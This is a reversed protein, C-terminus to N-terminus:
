EARAKAGAEAGAEAESELLELMTSALVKDVGSLLMRGFVHRPPLCLSRRRITQDQVTLNFGAMVAYHTMNPYTALFAPLSMMEPAPAPIPASRAKSDSSDGEESGSGSGSGSARNQDQDQDQDQNSATVSYVSTWMGGKGKGTRKISEDSTPQMAEATQDEEQDQDEQERQHKRPDEWQTHGEELGQVGTKTTSLLGFYPMALGDQTVYVGWVEEWGEGEGEGLTLEGRHAMVFQEIPEPLPPTQELEHGDLNGKHVLDVVCCPHCDFECKVCSYAWGVGTKDCLDCNYDGDHVTPMRALVHAHAAISISAPFHGLSEEVTTNQARAAALEEEDDENEEDEEDEQADSEETEAATCSDSSALLRLASKTQSHDAKLEENYRSAAGSPSPSPSASASAFPSPSRTAAIDGGQLYPMLMVGIEGLGKEVCLDLATKGARTKASADAASELLVRVAEGRGSLVALHLARFGEANREELVEDGDWDSLLLRLMAVNGEAAAIHLTTAGVSDVKGINGGHNLLLELMSLDGAAAALHLPTSGGYAEALPLNAIVADAKARAATQLLVTACDLQGGKVAAHLATLGVEPVPDNKAGLQLCLRLCNIRGLKAAMLLATERSSTDLETDVNAGGSFAIDLAEADGSSVAVLIRQQWPLLRQTASTSSSTSLLSASGYGAGAGATSETTNSGLASGFGAFLSSHATPSPPITRTVAAVQTTQAQVLVQVSLPPLNRTALISSHSHSHSHSHSSSMESAAGLGAGTESTSITSHTPSPPGPGPVLWNGASLRHSPSSPGAAVWNTGDVIAGAHSPSTTGAGGWSMAGAGAHTPSRPLSLPLPHGAAAAASGHQVQVQQHHQHFSSPSGQSPFGRGPGPGLGSLASVPSGPSCLSSPHQGRLAMSPPSMHANIPSIPSPSGPVLVQPQQQQYQQQNQYQQQPQPHPQPSSSQVLAVLSRLALAWSDAEAKSEAALDLTRTSTLVSLCMEPSLMPGSGGRAIFKQFASTCHGQLVQTSPSLPLERSLPELATGSPLDSPAPYWCLSLPLKLFALGATDAATPKPIFAQSAVQASQTFRVLRVRGNPSSSNALAITVVRREAPGKGNFPIRWLASASGGDLRAPLLIVQVDVSPPSIQLRPPRQLAGKFEADTVPGKVGLTKEGTVQKQLELLDSEKKQLRKKLLDNEQQLKLLEDQQELVKNPPVAPPRPFM